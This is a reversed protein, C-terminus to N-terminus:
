GVTMHMSCLIITKRGRVEAPGSCISFYMKSKCIKTGIWNTVIVNLFKVVIKKYTNLYIDPEAELLFTTMILFCKIHKFYEIQALTYTCAM